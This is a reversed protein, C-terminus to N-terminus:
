HSWPPRDDGLDSKRRASAFIRADHVEVSPRPDRDPSHRGSAMNFARVDHHHPRAENEDAIAPRTGLLRSRALHSPPDLLLPPLRLQNREIFEENVKVHKEAHRGFPSRRDEHISCWGNQQFEKLLTTDVYQRDAIM